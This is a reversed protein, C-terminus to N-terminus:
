AFYTVRHPQQQEEMHNDGMSHSTICQTTRSRSRNRTHIEPIFTITNFPILQCSILQLSINTFYLSVASWILYEHIIFTHKHTEKEYLTISNKM